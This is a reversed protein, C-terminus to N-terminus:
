ISVRGPMERMISLRFIYFFPLQFIVPLYFWFNEFFSFLFCFYIVAYSAIASFSFQTCIRKYYYRAFFCFLTFFVILAWYGLDRYIPLVFSGVTFSSAELVSEPDDLQPRLFSPILRSVSSLDMVPTRYLEVANDLNLINFYSYSYLWIGASPIWSYEDKIRALEGIDQGLRFDGLVGFVLLVIAIVTFIRISSFKRITYNYVVFAEVLLSIINQRTMFLLFLFLVTFFILRYFKDGKTIWLYFATLGLANAFANYFGYLGKIGFNMYNSEGTVILSILPVYGALTVNIAALMLYGLFIYSLFKKNVFYYVESRSAIAGKNPLIILAIAIILVVIRVTDISIDRSYESIPLIAFFIILLWPTAFAVWINTIDLRYALFAVVFFLLSIVALMSTSDILFMLALLVPPTILKLALSSTMWLGHNVSLM